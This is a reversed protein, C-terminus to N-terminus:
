SLSALERQGRLFELGSVRKRGALQVEELVLAGRGTAVAFELSASLVTGPLEHGHWDLRPRVKWLRLRQGRALAFLGPWPDYARARRWLVEAPSTWDVRGDEKSIRPALTALAADQPQPVLAGDLWLPLTRSLLEAGMASLRTELTGTTDDSQLACREQALIPGADLEETLLIITVGTEEDGALIASAMPSAGRHRPLLSPHVNLYGHLPIQLMSKGLYQGFAALVGAEPGFDALQSLFEPANVSGPQWVTLGHHIAVKEVPTREVTQGRGRPREPQTIVVINHGDSILRELVPVAFDPTGLFVVRAM